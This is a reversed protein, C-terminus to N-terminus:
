FIQNGVKVFNKPDHPKGKYRIEYHLHSGTSKGTSGQVGIVQGKKIKMGRNVLIRRLHAYETVIGNGHDIEITRGFGGRSGVYIIKGDSPAYIKAGIPGVMDLGNHMKYKRTFPDRRVGFGSSFYYNKIPERLPIKDIFNELYQLYSINDRINHYSKAFLLKKEFNNRGEIEDFDDSYQNDKLAAQHVGELGLGTEEILNELGQIRQMLAINIGKTHMEDRDLVATRQNKYKNDKEDVLKFQFLEEDVAISDFRDYKNLSEIYKQITKINVDVVKLDKRLNNNSFSLQSIEINKNIIVQKNHFYMATTFFIWLILLFNWSCFLWGIEKSKIGKDSIIVLKRSPALSKKLKKLKRRM